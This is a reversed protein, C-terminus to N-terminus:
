LKGDVETGMYEVIKCPLTWILLQCHLFCLSKRGFRLTSSIFSHVSIIWDDTLIYGVDEALDHGLVGAGPFGKGIKLSAFCLVWPKIETNMIVILTHRM